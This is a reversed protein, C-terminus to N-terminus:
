KSSIIIYIIAKIQARQLMTDLYIIFLLNKILKLQCYMLNCIM